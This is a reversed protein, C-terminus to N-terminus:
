SRQSGLIEVYKGSENNCWMSHCSPLYLICSPTYCAKENPLYSIKQQIWKIINIFQKTLFIMFYQVLLQGINNIKTIFLEIITIFKNQYIFHFWIQRNSFLIKDESNWKLELIQLSNGYRCDKSFMKLIKM